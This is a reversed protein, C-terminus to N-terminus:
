FLNLQYTLTLTKLTRLELLHQLFKKKKNRDIEDQSPLDFLLAMQGQSYNEDNNYTFEYVAGRFFLLTRPEKLKQDLINKIEQSAPLWEGHSFRCKEVNDAEKERLGALLISQKIADVFQRTAEKAPFKKSYM